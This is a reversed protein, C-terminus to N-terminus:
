HTDRFAKKGIEKDTEAKWPLVDTDSFLAQYICVNKPETNSLKLTRLPYELEEQSLLEFQNQILLSNITQEEQNTTNQTVIKINGTDSIKLITAYLGLMSLEIVWQNKSKSLLYRFSVDDNVDSIEKVGFWNALKNILSYYPRTANVKSVFSFDPHELSKYKHQIVKLLAKIKPNEM